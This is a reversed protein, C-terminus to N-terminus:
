LPDVQGDDQRALKCFLIEKEKSVGITSNIDTGCTEMSKGIDEHQAHANLSVEMSGFETAYGLNGGCVRSAGRNQSKYCATYYQVFRARPTSGPASAKNTPNSLEHDKLKRLSKYRIKLRQTDLLCSRFKFHAKLHQVSANILGEPKHIKAFHKVNEWWGRDQFCIDNPYPPDFNPDMTSRSKLFFENMM